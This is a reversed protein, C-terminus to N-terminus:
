LRNVRIYEYYKLAVDVRYKRSIPIEYNNILIVSEKLIDKVYKMNVIYSRHVQIFNSNNLKKLLNNLYICCTNEKKATYIKTYSGSAKAYIIDSVDIRCNSIEIIYHEEDEKEIRNLIMEIMELNKKSIFGIVNKGFAEQMRQEHNSVFIIKCTNSMIALQNKIDIGCHNGMEIDLFLIDLEDISNWLNIGNHFISVKYNKKSKNFHEDILLKIRDIYFLEDDCVGIKYIM